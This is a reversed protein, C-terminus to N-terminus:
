INDYLIKKYWLTQTYKNIKHAVNLEEKADLASFHRLSERRSKISIITQHAWSGFEFTSKAWPIFLMEVSKKTAKKLGSSLMSLQFSCFSAWGAAQLYEAWNIYIISAYLRKSQGKRAAFICTACTVFFNKYNFRGIKFATGVALRVKHCHTNSIKLRQRPQQPSPQM